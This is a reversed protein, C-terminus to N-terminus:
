DLFAVTKYFKIAGAAAMAVRCRPVLDM